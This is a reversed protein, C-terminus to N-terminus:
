NAFKTKGSSLIIWQFSQKLIKIIAPDFTNMEEYNSSM